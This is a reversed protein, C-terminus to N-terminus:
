PANTATGPTLQLREALQKCWQAMSEANVVTYAHQWLTERQEPSLRAALRDFKRRYDSKVPEYSDYLTRLPYRGEFVQGDKMEVTMLGAKLPDHAPRVRAAINLTREDAIKESTYQDLFADGELLLFALGLNVSMQADIVSVPQHFNDIKQFYITEPSQPVYVTIREIDEVPFPHKEQIASLTEVWPIVGQSCSYFKPKVHLIADCLAIQSTLQKPYPEFGLAALLGAPGDISGPAGRFGDNALRTSEIAIQQSRAVHIKKEDTGDHYYQFLGNAGGAAFGMASVVQEDSLHFLKASAAAAGIGGCISSPMWGKRHLKGAPQLNMATALRDSLQYSVALSTLFERGTSNMYEAAALPAPVAICSARLQNRLNSDDIEHGHIAFANIAAAKALPLKTGTVLETAEKRGGTDTLQRFRQVQELQSTHALVGVWDCVTLQLKTVIEDDLDEFQLPNIAQAWEVAVPEAATTSLTLWLTLTAAMAVYRGCQIAVSQLKM